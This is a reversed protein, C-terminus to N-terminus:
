AAYMGLHVARALLRQKPPTEIPLATPRTFQMYLFRGVVVILFVTAFVMESNLLDSDELEEVEDLQKSLAYLFFALFGWHMVM